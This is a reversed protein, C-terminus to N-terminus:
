LLHWSVSEGLKLLVVPICVFLGVDVDFFSICLNISNCSCVGFILVLEFKRLPIAVDVSM